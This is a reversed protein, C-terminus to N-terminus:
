KPEHLSCGFNKGSWFNDYAAAGNDDPNEGARSLKHCYRYNIKDIDSPKNNSDWDPDAMFNTNWWRCTECTNM